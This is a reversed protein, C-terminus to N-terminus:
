AAHVRVRHIANNGYGSANARAADPQRDGAGDTARAMVSCEGSALPVDAHWRRWAVGDAPPEIRADVWHGGGDGSAEVRAVGSPGAWALGEVRTIGGPLRAGDLPATILSKVRMAEVPLAVDEGPHRYHYANAMFHNDSPREEVRIRTLWKTSAMGYWGPVVARLPFGHAAPLPEGNMAWALLVDDMAKAIPLSRVFRPDNGSGPADAAELWVHAAGPMLGADRLLSGLPVGRWRATGVAGREWPTGPPAPAGFLARGNGACEITHTAELSPMAHLTDLTHRREAQVRGVIELRWTAPDVVPVAMHSRVFFRDNPTLACAGLAEIPTELQDPRQERVILPPSDRDPTPTM